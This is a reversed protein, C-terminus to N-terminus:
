GQAVELLLLEVPASLGEAVSLQEEGQCPEMGDKELASFELTKSEIDRVLKILRVEADTM